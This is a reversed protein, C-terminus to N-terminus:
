FGAGLLSGQGCQLDVFNDEPKRKVLGEDMQCFIVKAFDNPTFVEGNIRVREQSKLCNKENCKNEGNQSPIGQRCRRKQSLLVCIDTEGLGCAILITRLSDTDVIDQHIRPIKYLEKIFKARPHNSPKEQLLFRM